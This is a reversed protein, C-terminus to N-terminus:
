AKRKMRLFEFSSWARGAVGRNGDPLFDRQHFIGYGRWHPRMPVTFWGAASRRAEGRRESVGAERATAAERAM